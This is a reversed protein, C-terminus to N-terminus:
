HHRLKSLRRVDLWLATILLIAMLPAVPPAAHWVLGLMGLFIPTMIWYREYGFRQMLQDQWHNPLVLLLSALIVFTTM